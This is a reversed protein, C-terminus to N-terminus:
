MKLSNMMAMVCETKANLPVECGSGLMFGGKMGLETILKECYTSVQDPTGMALMTAPVDGRISHWGELEAHAKFIDTVGDLEFHVSHKPLQKFFPLMPGWNGDAHLVSTIGAKWLSEIILKLSPWAVEEFMDPSLFSASSRMAFIGARDGKARKVNAITLDIQAPTAENIIDAIRGPMDVIDYCFAEMSRVMSLTDYVPGMATHFIPVMGRKSLHKINNGMNIGMKIFRFTLGFNTKIPPKQIGKMYQNYWANFGMKEIKDYEDESEFANTEVFQYLEEDGLEIGPVRSPLGMVFITDKLNNPMFVDPNGILDFCKDQSELWKKGDAVMEAQTHGSVKGCWTLIMPFLPIESRDKPKVCKLMNDFKQASNM